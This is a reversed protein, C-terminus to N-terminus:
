AAAWGGSGANVQAAKMIMVFQMTFEAAPVIAVNFPLVPHINANDWHGVPSAKDALPQPPQNAGNNCARKVVGLM